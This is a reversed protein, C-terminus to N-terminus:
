KKKKKSKRDDQAQKLKSRLASSTAADKKPQKPAPKSILIGNMITKYSGKGDIQRGHSNQVKDIQADLFAMDDLGDLDEETQRTNKPAPKGKPKGGLRNGKRKQKSTPRVQQPTARENAHQREERQRALAHLTANMSPTEATDDQTSSLATENAKSAGKADDDDDDEGEEEISLAAFSLATNASADVASAAEPVPDDATVTPTVSDVSEFSTAQESPPTAQVKHPVKLTIRRDVQDVGSSSHALGLEEATEHITRRDSRSLETSFVLEEGPKGNTAFNKVREVLQKQNDVTLTSQKPLTKPEKKKTAPEDMMQTLEEAAALLDSAIQGENHNRGGLTDDMFELATRSEGHEEM